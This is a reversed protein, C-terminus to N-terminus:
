SVSIIWAAAVAVGTLNALTAVRATSHPSLVLWPILLAGRLGTGVPALRARDRHEGLLVAPFTFPAFPTWFALAVWAGVITNAAGWNSQQTLIWAVTVLPGVACAAAILPSAKRPTRPTTNENM